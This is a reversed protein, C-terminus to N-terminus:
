VSCGTLLPRGTWRYEDVWLCCLLLWAEEMRLTSQIELMSPLHEALFWLPAPGENLINKSCFITGFKNHLPASHLM